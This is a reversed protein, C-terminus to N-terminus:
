CFRKLLQSNYYLRLLNPSVSVNDMVLGIMGNWRFNQDSRGGYKGDSPLVIRYNTDLENMLDILANLIKIKFNSSIFLKINDNM